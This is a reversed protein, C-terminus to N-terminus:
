ARAEPERQHPALATCCAKYLALWKAGSRAEYRNTLARQLYAFPLQPPPKKALTSEVSAWLDDEALHGAVTAAAAVLLLERDGDDAKRTLGAAQLRQRMQNAVSRVEQWGDADIGVDVGVVVDSSTSVGCPDRTKQVTRYQETTPASADVLADVTGSPHVSAARWKAQRKKKQLRSKAGRTVWREANPVEVTGDRTSLWGVRALADYFAKAGGVLSPLADVSVDVRGDTSNTQVWAWFEILQLLVDGRSMGTREAIRQLEPKRPTAVEIPIWDGAM